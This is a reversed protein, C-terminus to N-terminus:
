YHRHEGEDIHMVLQLRTINDYTPCWWGDWEPLAPPVGLQDLRELREQDTKRYLEHFPGIKTHSYHNLYHLGFTYAHDIWLPPIGHTILHDVLGDRTLNAMKNDDYPHVTLATGTLEMFPRDPYSLNWIDIAEHYFGPLVVLCGFKCMFDSQAAVQRPGLVCGVSYGHVSCWDVQLVFNMAIGHIPNGSGLRGHHIVYQAMADIDLMREGTVPPLGAGLSKNRPNGKFTDENRHVPFDEWLQHDGPFPRKAQQLFGRDDLIEKMTLNRLEPTFGGAIRHFETLLRYAETHDMADKTKDNIFRIGRHVEHPNMPFGHPLYSYLRRDGSTMYHDSMRGKYDSAVTVTKGAFVCNSRLSHYFYRRTMQWLDNNCEWANNILVVGLGDPIQGPHSALYVAQAQVLETNPKGKDRDNDDGYDKDDSDEPADPYRATKAAEPESLEPNPVLPENAREV